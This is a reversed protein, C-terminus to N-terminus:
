QNPNSKVQPNISDKIGSLNDDISLLSEAISELSPNETRTYSDIQNYDISFAHNHEKGTVDTYTAVITHTVSPLDVSKDKDVQYIPRQYRKDPGLHSIGNKFIDWEAIQTGLSAGFSAVFSASDSPHSSYTTVTLKLNYATGTGNNYICLDVSHSRTTRNSETLFVQLNPTNSLKLMEQQIKVLKRTLLVYALTIGALILSSIFMLWEVM